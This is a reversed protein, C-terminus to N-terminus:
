GDALQDLFGQWGCSRGEHNCRAGPWGTPELVWWVTKRQCKPCPARRAYPGVVDAGLQAALERRASPDTRYREALAWRVPGAPRGTSPSAAPPPAALETLDLDLLPGDELWSARQRGPREYPLFYLRGVDGTRMDHRPDREVAWRWVLPWAAASVPRALPVVVRARAEALDEHSWSTHGLHRWPAWMRRVEDLSACGDYDLVLACTEVAARESRRPERFTWPSWAPLGRKDPALQGVGRAVAAAARSCAACGTCGRLHAEAREVTAACDRCAGGRRWRKARCRPCTWPLEPAARHETLREALQEWTPRTRTSPPRADTIWFPPGHWAGFPFWTVSLGGGPVPGSPCAPAADTAGHPNPHGNTDLM